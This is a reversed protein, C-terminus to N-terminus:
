RRRCPVVGDGFDHRLRRVLQVGPRGSDGVIVHEGVETVRQDEVVAPSVDGVEGQGPEACLAQLRVVVSLCEMCRGVGRVVRRDRILASPSVTAPSMAAGNATAAAPGVWDVPAVETASMVRMRSAVTTRSAPAQSVPDAQFPTTVRSCFAAVGDIHRWVRQAADGAVGGVEGAVEVGDGAGDHEDAVGVAPNTVVLAAVPSLFTLGQDVDIREDRGFAVGDVAEGFLVGAAPDCRGRQGEHWGCAADGVGVDLGGVESADECVVQGSLSGGLEGRGLARDGSGGEGVHGCVPM